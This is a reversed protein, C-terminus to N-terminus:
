KFFLVNYDLIDIVPESTRHVLIPNRKLFLRYWGNGPMNKSGFPHQRPSTDLFAKVSFLIDEKRKPFGRKCSEVVWEVIQNEEVKTLITIPGPRSKKYSESLRFQLTSRPINFLKAASKKSIKGNVVANEANQINEESFTSRKRPM